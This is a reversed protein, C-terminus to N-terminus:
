DTFLSETGMTDQDLGHALANIILSRATTRVNLHSTMNGGAMRGGIIRSPAELVEATRQMRDPAFVNECSDSNGCLAKSNVYVYYEGRKRDKFATETEQNVIEGGLKVLKSKEKMSM